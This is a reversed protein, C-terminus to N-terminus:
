QLHNAAYNKLNIAANIDRDHRTGCNQCTWKRTNLSLGNYKHGFANCIKSSAFWRDAIVIHTNATEAKYEL